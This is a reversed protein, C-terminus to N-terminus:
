GSEKGVYRAYVTSERTTAEFEGPKASMGKIRGKRLSQAIAQASNPTGKTNNGEVVAWKGPHARLDATIKEWDYKQRGSEPLSKVFTTM